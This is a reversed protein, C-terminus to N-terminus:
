KDGSTALYVLGGLLLLLMLPNGGVSVTGGAQTYGYNAPRGLQYLNGNEDVGYAQSADYVVQPRNLTRDVYSDIAYGLHSLFWATGDNQTENM